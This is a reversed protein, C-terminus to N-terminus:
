IVNIRGRDRTGDAALCSGRRVLLSSLASGVIESGLL